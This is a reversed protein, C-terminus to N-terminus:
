RTSTSSLLSKTPELVTSVRLVDITHGSGNVLPSQNQRTTAVLSLGALELRGKRDWGLLARENSMVGIAAGTSVDGGLLGSKSSWSTTRSQSGTGPATDYSTSTAVLVSKESPERM